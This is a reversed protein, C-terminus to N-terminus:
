GYGLNSSTPADGLTPVGAIENLTQVALELRRKLGVIEAYQAQIINDKDRLASAMNALALDSPTARIGSATESRERDLADRIWTPLAQEEPPRPHFQSGTGMGYQQVLNSVPLM